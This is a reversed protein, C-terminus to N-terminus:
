PELYRELWAPVAPGAALMVVVLRGRRDVTATRDRAHTPPVVLVSLSKQEACAPGTSVVSRTM